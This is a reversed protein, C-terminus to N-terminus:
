LILFYPNKFHTLKMPKKIHKCFHHRPSLEVIHFGNKIIKIQAVIQVPKGDVIKHRTRSLM